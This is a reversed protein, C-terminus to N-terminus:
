FLAEGITLIDGPKMVTELSKEYKRKKKSKESILGIKKLSARDTLGGSIAIAKRITLGEVYPYGGPSKVEGNVFFPRYKLISIVLQPNKLYGDKFRKTLIKKLKRITLGSVKVDGILPFTVKGVKPVRVSPVSMEPENFVTVSVTDGSSLVYESSNVYGVYLVLTLAIINLITKKM